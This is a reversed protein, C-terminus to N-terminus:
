LLSFLGPVERISVPVAMRAKRAEKAALALGLFRGCILHVCHSQFDALSELALFREFFLKQCCAAFNCGDRMELSLLPMWNQQAMPYDHMEQIPGNLIIDSATKEMGDQLTYGGLRMRLMRLSKRLSGFAKTFGNEVVTLILKWKKWVVICYLIFCQYCFSVTINKLLIPGDWM